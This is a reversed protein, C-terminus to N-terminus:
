CGFRAKSGAQRQEGSVRSSVESTSWSYGLSNLGQQLHENRDGSALSASKLIAVRAAELLELGALAAMGGRSPESAPLTSLAGPAPPM